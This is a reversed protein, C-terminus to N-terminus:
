AAEFPLGSGRDFGTLRRNPSTMAMSLSRNKSPHYDEMEHNIIMWRESPRCLEEGRTARNNAQPPLGCCFCSHACGGGSTCTRPGPWSFSYSQFYGDSELALQKKKGPLRAGSARFLTLGPQFLTQPQFGPFLFVLIFRFGRLPSVIRRWSDGQQKRSGTPWLLFCSRLWGNPGGVCAPNAHPPTSTGEATAREKTKSSHKSLASSQTSRGVRDGTVQARYGLNDNRGYHSIQKQERQISLASQERRQNRINSKGVASQQTSVAVRNV